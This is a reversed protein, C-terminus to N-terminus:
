GWLYKEEYEVGHKKLFAVYEEEFTMRKHHKRQEAIYRSVDPIASSSVTFASYGDQWNFREGVLGSQRIAKSSGGKIRKMAESIMMDKPIDILMHIHNEIGGIRRVTVGHRKCAEAVVAWIREEIETVIIMERSKTSFVCHYQLQTFTNAM